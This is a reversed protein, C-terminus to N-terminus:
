ELPSVQWGQRELLRLVGQEGPLHLAGFGALIGKGQRAAREAGETLPAIWARNRSDMLTGRLLDLQADVDQPSFGSTLYADFRGFEWIDWVRGAFYADALTAAYDDAYAATPLTARILDIEQASTMQDFLSFLTNWPELAHIPISKEQAGAILRQDLGHADAGSAMMCPSLGLMATVFWPRLRAVAAPPLGRLAMAQSLAQWEAKSLREPLGPGGPQMILSPDSALAHDLRAQEDPGAEVYLAGAEALLPAIRAMLRDHRPDGFHYTGILTIQAAGRRAQWILGQHHPVQASAQAIRARMDQPAATILNRGVCDAGASVLGLLMFVLALWLKMAMAEQEVAEEKCPDRPAAMALNEGRGNVAAM